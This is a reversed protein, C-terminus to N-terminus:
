YQYTVTLQVSRGPSTYFDAPRPLAVAGATPINLANWYTQNLINYIGAQLKLGKISAPTWYATLDAVGYGPAKFDAYRFQKTTEPYTVDNRAAAATVQAELGWQEQSYALGALVTLPAISNLAQGTSTDQGVSWALSGFTRWGPAFRWFAKAEIGYIRVSELNLYNQIFYPYQANGPRNVTEIFNQYSNDFYTLSGNLTQDGVKTGLEWGRSTEPRLEPTGAILYTGPSGYRGYLQTPTPANFGFAYQAFVSFNETPAWSALLKPSVASGRAAPLVQKGVAPNKQFSDTQQPTQEYADYRVAPTLSWRKDSFSLTNQAWLGWQNGNVKPMESQNTRLFSCPSYRSFRAPCNDKGTSSQQVSTGFWEAGVSWLQSVEGTLSKTLIANIGVTDEQMTNQRSYTGVPTLRRVADLKNELSVQQTYVKADVTDILSNAHPAIWGYDLSLSQRRTSNNLVNQDTRYTVPSASANQVSNQRDFYAGSLGLTHGQELKQVLALQYNQQLYQAPDPQTRLSGYTDVKGMNGSAHGDQVGAQLLLQTRPALQGALAVNSLWSRDVSQYGAKLLSGFSKGGTLLEAPKLSHVDIVGGLAGSGATSSDAGRVIDIASLANFDVTNLGGKVGRGIDNFWSQRIGDIRTLVRNKDLGRVNISQNQENYYVGPETRRGFDSWNQIQLRELDKRTTESTWPTTASLAGSEITVTEFTATQAAKVPDSEALVEPAIFLSATALVAHELTVLNKKLVVDLM